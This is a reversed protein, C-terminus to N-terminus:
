LTLPLAALKTCKSYEVVAAALTTQVATFDAATTAATTSQVVWVCNMVYLM